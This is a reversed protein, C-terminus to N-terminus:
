HLIRLEDSQIQLPLGDVEISIKDFLVFIRSKTCHERPSPVIIILPVILSLHSQVSIWLYKLVEHIVQLETLYGFKWMRQLHFNVFFEYKPLYGVSEVFVWFYKCINGISVKDTVLEQFTFFYIQNVPHCPIGWLRKLKVLSAISPRVGDSEYLRLVSRNKSPVRRHRPGWILPKLSVLCSEDERHGMLALELNFFLEPSHLVSFIVQSAKPVIYDNAWRTLLVILAKWKQSIRVLYGFAHIVVVLIILQWLIHSAGKAEFDLLYFHKLNPRESEIPLFCELSFSIRKKYYNNWIRRYFTTWM